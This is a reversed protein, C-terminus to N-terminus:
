GRLNRGYKEVFKEVQIHSTWVPRTEGQFYEQMSETSIPGDIEFGLRRLLEPHSAVIWSTGEIRSVLSLKPEVALAEALLHLGERMQTYLKMPSQNTKTAVHLHLTKKDEGIHYYLLENLKVNDYSGRREQLAKLATELSQATYHVYSFEKVKNVLEEIFVDLSEFEQSNISEVLRIFESEREPVIEAANEKLLQCFFKVFSKGVPVESARQRIKAPLEDIRLLRDIKKREQEVM